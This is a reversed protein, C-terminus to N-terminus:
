DMINLIKFYGYQEELTNKVVDEVDLSTGVVDERLPHTELELQVTPEINETDIDKIKSVFSLVHSIEMQFNGVEEQDLSLMALEAINNLGERTIM